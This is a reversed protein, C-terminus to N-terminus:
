IRQFKRLNEQISQSKRMDNDVPHEDGDTTEFKLRDLQNDSKSLLDHGNPMRLDRRSRRLSTQSLTRRLTTWSMTRRWTWSEDYERMKYQLGNLLAMVVILLFMFIGLIIGIVLGLHDWLRSRVISSSNVLSYNFSCSLYTTDLSQRLLIPDFEMSFSTDRTSNHNTLSQVISQCQQEVRDFECRNMQEATERGSMTQLCPVYQGDLQGHKFAYLLPCNCKTRNSISVLWPMSRPAGYVVCSTNMLSHFRYQIMSSESSRCCCRISMILSILECCYRMYKENVPSKSWKIFRIQDFSVHFVTQIRSVDIFSLDVFTVDKVTIKHRIHVTELASPNWRIINVHSFNMQISGSTRSSFTNSAFHVISNPDNSPNNSLIHLQNDYHNLSLNAFAHSLFSLGRLGVFQLLFLTSQSRQQSHLSHFAYSKFCLCTGLTRLTMNFIAHSDLLMNEFAYSDITFRTLFIADFKVSSYTQLEISQFAYPKIHIHSILEFHFSLIQESPIVLSAFAYSDFRVTETRSILIEMSSNLDHERLLNSSFHVETVSSIDLIIRSYKGMQIGSLAYRDFTCGYFFKIVIRLTSYSRLDLGHFTHSTINLWSNPAAFTITLTRNPKEVILSQFAYPRLILQVHGNLIMFTDRSGLNFNVFSRAPVDTLQTLIIDRYSLCDYCNLPIYDFVRPEYANQYVINTSTSRYVLFMLLWIM